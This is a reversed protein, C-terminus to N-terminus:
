LLVRRIEGDNNYIAMPNYDHNHEHAIVEDSSMGFIFINDEGVEEYMEVNAGDMTGITIAGNLMFKMNGTGSAEKSALSIQESIDAAPILKEALTVNYNELMVIKLYPSVQPDEEVIDRFALIAHIIEKATTYAPAAKAGFFVTVPTEPLIGKKIEQYTRIAWLLNLQQRKYEHLRKAQVDFVSEPDVTIGREQKLWQAFRIKNHKKIQLLKETDSIEALTELEEAHDIWDTGIKDIIYRTLEPNSM